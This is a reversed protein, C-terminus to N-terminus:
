PKSARPLIGALKCLIGLMIEDPGAGISLLRGDRLARSVRSEWMYGMGGWYQLCTDAVERMLRGAKLKAMTALRTVDEGDVFQETARWVLGRLAEVETLLEAIRFHVVQNDIIPRGFTARGRTYEVTEEIVSDMCGLANAAGWLREQQFQLMQMFFGMGEDGILHRRPVRVDDFFLQATDSAWMGLKKLKKARTVGRTALPVIILSKNKHPGGEPSTNALLCIWDAQMGNTIWMKSGSIIYDGGDKRAFTRIGGVDSGAEPESTGVCGVLEGAISPALFERRLADSGFRALAPTCMDSQVGIAMPVGGCHTRGLEEGAVVSYSYDLGMGGFEVPMSIGLLGARGLKLFLEHAPFSEAEEWAEVFPNIERDVVARVTDRLAAHEPTLKM